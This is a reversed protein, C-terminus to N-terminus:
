RPWVQRGIRIFQSAALSGRENRAKSGPKKLAVEVAARDAEHMALLEYRKNMLVLLVVDFEHNLNISGVRQGGLPKAEDLARSKIQITKGNRPDTADYGAARAPALKLGLEEAAYFEGIEGTIGLPKGTLDYYEVAADKARALVARIQDAKKTM